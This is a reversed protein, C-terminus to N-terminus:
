AYAAAQDGRDTGAAADRLIEQVTRKTQHRRLVEEELTDRALLYYVFVSRDLGSQKQRVPGIREAIQDHLELDWWHGFYALINGGEQLNLGHGASAPHAVLMQIKGTNWDAVTQPKADLLRAGPFAKLIRELEHKYQYAVLVPMGAAEEVVSRLLELKEDHIHEWAGGDNTYISGTAIQLCKISRAAANVAEFENGAIEAFFEKQMEDYHRRVRRPLDFYLKRVIPKDVPFWDKADFSHCLDKTLGKVEDLAHEHPKLLPFGDPTMVSYFWRQSFATFSHGLRKGRDLFWMQGWLDVVGNPAPTGSLEIFRDIQTHAVQALAYARKGGQKLRFSKLRTSEDAVVIRFPWGKRRAKLVEYLWPLNDYNMTYVDAPQELAERRQPESGIITACRMHKLHGWKRIEEPWVTLAPRKPALVLAPAPDAVQLADIATLTAVTKGMGMGAWIGVRPTELIRATIMDQYPRPQYKM